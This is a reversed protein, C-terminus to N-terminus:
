NDNWMHTQSSFTIKNLGITLNYVYRKGIEWKEIGVDKPNVVFTQNYYKGMTYVHCGVTIPHTPGPIILLQAVSRLDMDMLLEDKGDHGGEDGFIHIDRQGILNEWKAAITGDDNVKASFDGTHYVQELTIRDIHIRDMDYDDEARVKFEVLSLAHYFRAPYASLKNVGVYKGGTVEPMFFMADSQSRNIYEHDPDAIQEATMPIYQGVTYGKVNMTRNEVDFTIMNKIEKLKGEKTLNDLNVAEFKYYPSFGAFILSGEEPWQYPNREVNQRKGDVLTTKIGGWAGHEAIYGFEGKDIHPDNEAAEKVDDESWPGPAAQSHFAMIGMTEEFPYTNGMVAGPVSKAAVSAVPTISVEGVSTGYDIDAKMCASAMSIVVAAALAKIYGQYRMDIM